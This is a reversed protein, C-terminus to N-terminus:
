GLHSVYQDAINAAYAQGDLAYPTEFMFTDTHGAQSQGAEFIPEVSRCSPVM